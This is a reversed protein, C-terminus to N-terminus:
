RLKFPNIKTMEYYDDVFKTIECKQISHNKTPKQVHLQNTFWGIEQNRTQPLDYKQRPVLTVTKLTKDLKENSFAEEVPDETFHNGFIENADSKKQNQIGKQRKFDQPIVYNPKEALIFMNHPNLQFHEMQNKDCFKMEKTITETHVINKHVENMGTGQRNAKSKM